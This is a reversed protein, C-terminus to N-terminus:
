SSAPAEVPKVLKARLLDRFESQKQLYEEFEEDSMALLQAFHHMTQKTLFGVGELQAAREELDPRAGMKKMQTQIKVLRSVDGKDFKVDLGLKHLNRLAEDAEREAYETGGPGEGVQFDFVEASAQYYTEIFHDIREERAVEVMGVDRLKRIHHYIAQPTKGLEAAIQSVTMEKARLLFIMRRRTEDGILKFAEPDRIVKFARM